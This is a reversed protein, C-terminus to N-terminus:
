FKATINDVLKKLEDCFKIVPNIIEMHDFENSHFRKIFIPLGPCYSIYDCWERGSVILQSKVQKINESPIEGSELLEIQLHALRTKIEIIGDDGVLRDPSAGFEHGGLDAIIFGVKETVVERESEYLAVVEPELLQGREMHINTYSEAPEGTIIEGALKRMYTKRTIGKGGSLIDNTKSASPVGLRAQFWEETGQNCEVLRRNTIVM